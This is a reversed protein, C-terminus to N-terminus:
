ANDDSLFEDANVSFRCFGSKSHVQSKLAFNTGENFRHNKNGVLYM